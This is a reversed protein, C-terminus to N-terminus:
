PRGGTCLTTPLGVAVNSCRHASHRPHHRNVGRTVRQCRRCMTEQHRGTRCSTAAELGEEGM